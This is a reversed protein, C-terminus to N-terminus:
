TVEKVLVEIHHAEGTRANFFVEPPEVVEFVRGGVTMRDAKSLAVDAEFFAKADAIGQARLVTDESGGVPDLFCPASSTTESATPMNYEDDSGDMTVHTITANQTLLSSFSM